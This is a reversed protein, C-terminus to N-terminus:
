PKRGKLWNAVRDKASQCDNGPVTAPTSLIQQALSEQARRRNQAEQRLKTNEADRDRAQRELEGISDNCAKTANNATTLDAEVKVRADHEVGNRHWQWANGGLSLALVLLVVLAASM